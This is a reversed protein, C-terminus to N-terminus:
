SIEFMGLHFQKPAAPQEYMPNSKREVKIMEDSGRSSGSAGKRPPSGPGNPMNPGRWQAAQSPVTVITSTTNQNQLAIKLLNARGPNQSLQSSSVSTSTIKIYTLIVWSRRQLLRYVYRPNRTSAEMVLIMRMM